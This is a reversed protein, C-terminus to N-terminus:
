IDLFVVTDRTGVSEITKEYDLTINVFNNLNIGM